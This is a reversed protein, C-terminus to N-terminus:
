WNSIVGLSQSAIKSTVDQSFDKLDAVICIDVVLRDISEDVWAIYQPRCSKSYIKSLVSGSFV